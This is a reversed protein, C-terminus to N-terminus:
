EVGPLKKQRRISVLLPFLIPVVLLREDSRCLRKEEIPRPSQKRRDQFPKILTSGKDREGSAEIRFPMVFPDLNHLYEIAQEIPPIYLCSFPEPPPFVIYL